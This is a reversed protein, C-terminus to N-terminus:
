PSIHSAPKCALGQGAALVSDPPPPSSISLRSARTVVPGQDALKEREREVTSKRHTHLSPSHSLSVPPPQLASCLSPPPFLWLFHSYALWVEVCMHVCVCVCVMKEVWAVRALPHHHRRPPSSQQQVACCECANLDLTSRELGLVCRLNLQWFIAAVGSYDPGLWLCRACM